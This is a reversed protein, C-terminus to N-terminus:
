IFTLYIVDNVYVLKGSNSFLTIKKPAKKLLSSSITPIDATLSVTLHTHSTVCMICAASSVKRLMTTKTVVAAAVVVLALSIMLIHWQHHSQLWIQTFLLVYCYCKHSQIQLKVYISLLASLDHLQEVCNEMLMYNVM